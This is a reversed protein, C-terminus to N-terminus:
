QSHIMGYISLQGGCVTPTTTNALAAATCTVGSGGAPGAAYGSTGGGVFVLGGAVTPVTFKVAGPGNNSGSSEWLEQLVPPNGSPIPNYVFLTDPKAASAKNSAWKGYGSSNITFLLATSAESGNWSLSPITSPYSFTKPTTEPTGTPNFLGTASSIQYADIPASVGAVYLYNEPSAVTGAWFVPSSRIGASSFIDHTSNSEGANAGQFCQAIAGKGPTASETCASVVPNSNDSCNYGCGDLGGMYTESTSGTETSYCVGYLVGEKGGVVLEPNSGCPSPTIGVPAILTAGGAGFDLDGTGKPLTLQNASPCSTTAYTSCVTIATTDTNLDAYDNPTYYDVTALGSSTTALKVVSQGYESTGNWDGNGVAVYLNGSSDVAPAAGATWIGGDHNTAGDETDFVWNTGVPAFTQKSYNYTLGALYGSYPPIDCFAGFSVYVNATGSGADYLALGPRQMEFKASTKSNFVGSLDYPASTGNTYETGTSVNIAHLRYTYTLSATQDATVAYLVPPTVSTDIVPTSEIGIQPIINNCPTGTKSVGVVTFPTAYEGAGNLNLMWCQILTFTYSTSTTTYTWTFAYLSNNMTAVVVINQSGSCGKAAMTVGSLYLPQAYIMGDVAGSAGSSSPQLLGFNADSQSPFLSPTLTTEQSNVGDRTANNHYTAVCPGSSCAGSQAQASPFGLLIGIFAVLLCMPLKSM